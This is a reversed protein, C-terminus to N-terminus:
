GAVSLALEEVFTIIALFSLVLLGIAGVAFIVSLARNQFPAASVLNGFQTAVRVAVYIAIIMSALDLPPADDLWACGVLTGAALVRLLWTFFIEEAPALREDLSNLAQLM